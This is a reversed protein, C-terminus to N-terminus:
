VDEEPELGDIFEEFSNAVFHFCEEGVGGNDWKNVWVQGYTEPRLSINYDWGGSDIAFPFYGEVGYYRHGALIKGISSVKLFQKFQPVGQYYTEKVSMGLYKVIFSKFEQPLDINFETGLENLEELSGVIKNSLSIITLDKM